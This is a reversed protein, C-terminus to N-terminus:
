PDDHQRQDATEARPPCQPASQRRGGQSGRPPLRAITEQGITVNLSRLEKLLENKVKRATVVNQDAELHLGIRLELESLPPELRQALASADIKTEGSRTRASSPKTLLQLFRRGQRALEEPTDALTGYIGLRKLADVGGQARIITQVAFMEGRMTVFWTMREEGFLIRTAISDRLDTSAETLQQSKGTLVRAKFDLELFADPMTEGEKVVAANQANIVPAVSPSHTQLATANLEARKLERAVFEEEHTTTM